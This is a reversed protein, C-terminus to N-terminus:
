AHRARARETLMPLIAALTPQGIEEIDYSVRVAPVHLTLLRRLDVPTGFIVADCPTANITAELDAMQHASYGMAPLLRQLAPYTRLTEALSGRAYPRPDVLEAAGWRQAALSGAGYTMGGHTLTPGDEIVLVRKGAILTPDSVHLPAATDIVTARPNHHQVAAKVQRVAEPDATDEKTIVVIDALRLNALGPYYLSEHGPRHPDVLCLHVDPRIFPLDNNGGDWVLVDAETEAARLIAQYDVGAYVVTGQEVHPAYEEREEITCHHRDLDDLTAFRQVRQAELDGYPMPHRVVVPHHGQQRLLAVVRRTVASKGCGTRVACVAIVPVTSALMTVHPGLLTFNAGAALVMQALLMLTQHAIDSYAFVVEDVHLTAILGELDTEPYIPIGDPYASGALSAPFRRGAISPIQTATFAVVETQPDDRYCCLFNHFDRGAAGLIIVRHRPSLDSM